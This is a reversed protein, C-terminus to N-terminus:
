KEKYYGKWHTTGPITVPPSFRFDSFALYNHMSYRYDIKISVPVVVNYCVVFSISEVHAELVVSNKKESYSFTNINKHRSWPSKQIM